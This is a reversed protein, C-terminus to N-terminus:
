ALPVTEVQWNELQDILVRMTQDVMAAVAPTLDLGLDLSAPEVGLIVVEKVPEGLIELAALVDKLGLEHLSVKEQFYSKVEDGTFHYFSGPPRGGSVADVVLLRDTGTLYSLLDLGLTGGDLVQVTDPFRYCRHLEEIMRVGFGEDQLLINGIGLVTIKEM